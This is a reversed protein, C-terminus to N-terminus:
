FYSVVQFSVQQDGGSIDIVIDVRPVCYAKSIGKDASVFPEIEKEERSLAMSIAIHILIKEPQSSIIEAFVKDTIIGL